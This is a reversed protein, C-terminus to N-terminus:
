SAVETMRVPELRARVDEGLIEISRLGRQRYRLEGAEILRHVTPRSLDLTAAAETTTMWEPETDM